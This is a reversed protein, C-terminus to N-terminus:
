TLIVIKQTHLLPALNTQGNPDARNHHCDYVTRPLTCLNTIPQGRDSEPLHRFGKAAEFANGRGKKPVQLTM